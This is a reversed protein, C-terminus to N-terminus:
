AVCAAAKKQAHFCPYLSGALRLQLVAAATDVVHLVKPCNHIQLFSGIIYKHVQQTVFILTWIPYGTGSSNVPWRSIILITNTYSCSFRRSMAAYKVENVWSVFRKSSDLMTIEQQAAEQM